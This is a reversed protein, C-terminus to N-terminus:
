AQTIRFVVPAEGDNPQDHIVLAEADRSWEVPQAGNESLRAIGAIMGHFDANHEADGEKLRTFRYVGDAAGRMAIAYLASGAVTYRADASTFNKAVGDGFQGETIETPGEGFRRWPKSGYIAEGNVKLWGGIGHLVAQDEDSITGDAKPGVNLLLNGNKAVIDVLDQVLETWPKFSNGETYCWSNRAIATDTQWHYPKAEALQGREIDPTATGFMMADHKYCITVEEGWEDARNYYFAAIKKLYKAAASHLIWWDFYLVRPHFRDIIECTRLLWDSLYEDTPAPESYQDYHDAPEPMAPWYFDGRQMPGTIDSDFERGHGMFFWHEIRHTSTGLVMGHRDCAQELEGVVDRQPGMQAANWRSIASAYMQFGDHHEAVPVVYRAGAQEFLSAWAEPDFHPATFMPIFDKYGFDKQPGYTAVHHEFERSGQIYMNRSYWESGFAPVSYVGWHIFIGFKAQAFWAPTRHQQLSAWDACFRGSDIVQDVAALAETMSNHGAASAYPVTISQAM